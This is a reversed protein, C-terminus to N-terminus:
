EYTQAIVRATREIAGEPDDTGALITDILDKMADEMAAVDNGHYWSESTLLQEAFTGVDEDDLANNILARLAPPKRTEALYSRVNDEDAMFQVFDWAWDEYETDKSVANVWYNAYNVERGGEIQPLKSIAFNLKPSATRLLPIHYSYGFFYATQGSAFAEFSSPFDSNWTYVEKTPNAFDTYFSVADLGPFVGDPTDDPITHFAVRGREDTMDTGNQMMLVTLIDTVREVNSSTGLAAGSQTLNGASDTKTLATVQEQFDEWTEAPAAIGAANLLEKNSFLALTDISVPLAFVEQSAEVKPDPQYDRIVDEAVVDLFMSKLSKQSLTPTTRKVVVTEKRIAGQTELFTVTTADPMPLLLEKYEEVTDNHLSFIDPGEGEALARILENAYEDSRLKKYNIAVNPHLTEYARIIEKYADDNDFVSWFTLEVDELSGSADGGGGCGIGTSLLVAGLLLTATLRTRPM